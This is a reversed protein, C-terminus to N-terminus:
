THEFYKALDYQAGLKLTTDKHMMCNHSYINGMPEHIRTRQYIAHCFRNLPRLELDTSLNQM